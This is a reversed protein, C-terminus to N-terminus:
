FIKVIDIKTKITKKSFDIAANRVATTMGTDYQPQIAKIKLETYLKEALDTPNLNNTIIKVLDHLAKTSISFTKGKGRGTKTKAFTTKLQINYLVTRDKDVIIIDGGRYWADSNLAEVLQPQLKKYKNEFLNELKGRSDKASFKSSLSGAQEIEIHRSQLAAFVSSHYDAMHYMFAETIKGEQQNAFITDNYSRKNTLPRLSQVTNYMKKNQYYLVAFLNSPIESKSFSKEIQTFYDAYHKQLNDEFKEIQEQYKIKQQHLAKMKASSVRIGKQTALDQTEMINSWRRNGEEDIFSVMLQTPANKLYKANFDDWANLASMGSQTMIYEADKIMNMAQQEYIEEFFAIFQSKTMLMGNAIVGELIDSM